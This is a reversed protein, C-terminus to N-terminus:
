GEFMKEFFEAIMHYLHVREKGEMNHGQGPYLFLSPQKEASVCAKVFRHFHQPLVVPDRDGHVLLLPCSLKEAQATLDTAAYGKPNKEPTQMYRETYMIEYWRWNIVAGGAVGAKFYDPYNLLLRLTMYGGFSWGYIGVRETDIYPQKRLWEVGAILDADTPSGLHRFTSQEFERGRNKSGRADLTFVVFGCNAMYVEWGAANCLWSSNVLQVHPGGYVYQIAPYKKGADFEPPLTLRYYLETKNDAALLSGTYIQIKEASRAELGFPLVDVVPKAEETKYLSFTEEDDLFLWDIQRAVTPTSFERFLYEGNMSLGANLVVGGSFPMRKMSGRQSIRCLSQELPSNGTSLFLIDGGASQGILKTVEWKGRTLQRLLKGELSYLYLHQWGDRRSVWVFGERDNGLRVPLAGFLPEVYTSSSEELLVAKRGGSKVNYRCLRCHQQSREIETLYIHKEDREWAIGSFFREEGSPTQLYVTEGSEVDIVGVTVTPNPQGSFPYRCSAQEGEPFESDAFYYRSESSTDARYFAAKKGSPSLFIGQTIGWENRHAPEGIVIDPNEEATLPREADVGIKWLNNQRTCLFSQSFPLYARNAWEKRTPMAAAIEATETDIWVVADPTELVVVSNEPSPVAPLPFKKAEPLKQRKLEDNLQSLPLLETHELERGQLCAKYLANDRVYLCASKAWCLGKLKEPDWRHYAEGSPVLLDLTLDEIKNETTM